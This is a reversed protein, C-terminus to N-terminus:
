LGHADNSENLPPYEMGVIDKIDVGKEQAIRRIIQNTERILPIISFTLINKLEAAGVTFSNDREKKPVSFNLYSDKEEIVIEVKDGEKWHANEKGAFGSLWREGYEVTLLGRSTFPKGTNKSVRPTDKIRSITVTKTEM